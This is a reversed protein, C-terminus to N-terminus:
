IRVRFVLGRLKFTSRVGQDYARIMFRLWLSKFGLWSDRCIISTMHGPNYHPPFSTGM